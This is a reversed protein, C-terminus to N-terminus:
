WWTQQQLSGAGPPTQPLSQCKTLDADPLVYAYFPIDAGLHSPCSGSCQRLCVTQSRPAM